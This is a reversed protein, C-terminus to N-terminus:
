NLIRKNIEPTAITNSKPSQWARWWMVATARGDSQLGGNGFDSGEATRVDFSVDQCAYRTALRAPWLRQGQIGGLGHGRRM